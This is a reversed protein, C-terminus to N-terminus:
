KERRGMVLGRSLALHAAQTRNQAGIKSLLATMHNKVTKETLGLAEAIDRNSDGNVVSSLIELERPTLFIGVTRESIRAAADPSLFRGNAAVTKIANLLITASAAKTVYGHAGMELARAIASEGDHSSLMLVRVEPHSKRIDELISFGDEDRLQLDLVAVRISETALCQRAQQGTEVSAVLHLDSQTGIIAALGERMVAHDDVLLITIRDLL